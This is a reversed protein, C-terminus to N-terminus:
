APSLQRAQALVVEVGRRLKDEFDPTGDLKVYHPHQCWLEDLLTDLRAAQAVDEPRHGHPWRAYAEPVRVAASEMHLVFAHRRYQDELTPGTMEFFSERLNGFSQWFACPDLTGRHTVLLKKGTYALAQALSDETAAQTAVHARQFERGRPDLRVFRMARIAEELVVM